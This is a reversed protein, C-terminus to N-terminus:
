QQVYTVTVGTTPTSGVTTVACLGNAAATKFITQGGGGYSKFTDALTGNTMTHTLSVPSGACAAGTGQELILTSATTTSAIDSMFGCVYVATNGSVAVIATTTATTINVFASLKPVSSNACPDTTGPTNVPTVTATAGGSALSARIMVQGAGSSFSSCRVRFDSMGGVAFQVATQATTYTAVATFTSGGDSSQEVIFTASFTGSLTVAVTGANPPLKMWACANAVACTASSASLSGGLPNSSIASTQGQQALVIVPLLLLLLALLLKKM